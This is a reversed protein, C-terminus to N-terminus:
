FYKSINLVISAYERMKYYNKIFADLEEPNMKLINEVLERQEEYNQIKRNLKEIEALLVSNQSKLNYVQSQLKSRERDWALDKATKNYKAM